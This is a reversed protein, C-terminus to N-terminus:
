FFNIRAFMSHQRKTKTWRNLQTIAVWSLFFSLFSFQCALFKWSAQWWVLGVSKGKPLHWRVPAFWKRRVMMKTLCFSVVSGHQTIFSSFAYSTRLIILRQPMQHDEACSKFIQVSPCPFYNKSIQSPLPGRSLFVKSCGVCWMLQCLLIQRVSMLFITRSLALVPCCGELANQKLKSCWAVIPLTWLTSYIWLAYLIFEKKGCTDFILCYWSNQHDRRFREFLIKV